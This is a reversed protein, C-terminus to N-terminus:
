TKKQYLNLYMQDCQQLVPYPTHEPTQLVLPLPRQYTPTYIHIIIQYIAESAVTQYYLKSVSFDLDM